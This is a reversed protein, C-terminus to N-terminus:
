EDYALTDVLIWAPSPDKLDKAFIWRDVMTQKQGANGNVIRGEGDKQTVSQEASFDVTIRARSGDLEAAAILAKTIGHFQVQYTENNKERAEIGDLFHRYLGPSLLFELTQRNGRAFAEVIMVFAKKAKELFDDPRFSPDIAAFPVLHNHVTATEVWDYNPLNQTWRETNVSARGTKTVAGLGAALPTVGAQMARETMKEKVQPPLDAGKLGGEPEDDSREGLVSRLRWLLAVAIVAFLIIDMYDTITNM